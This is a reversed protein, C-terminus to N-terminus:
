HNFPWPESQWRSNKQLASFEVSLKARMTAGYDYGFGNADMSIHDHKFM